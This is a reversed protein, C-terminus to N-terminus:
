TPPSGLFICEVASDGDLGTRPRSAAAGGRLSRPSPAPRPLGEPGLRRARRGRGEELWRPLRHRPMRWTARPDYAVIAQLAGPVAPSVEAALEQMARPRRLLSVSEFRRNQEM